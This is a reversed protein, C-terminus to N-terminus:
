EDHNATRCAHNFPQCPEFPQITNTTTHVSSCSLMFVFFQDHKALAWWSSMYHRRIACKLPLPIHVQSMWGEVGKMRERLEHAHRAAATVEAMIQGVSNIFFAFYAAQTLVARPMHLTLSSAELRPTPM